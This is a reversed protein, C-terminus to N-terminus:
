VGAHPHVLIQRIGLARAVASAHQGAAGGFPVLVYDAPNYGKAVSIKRLARVMNANAVDIFGQALRLSYLPTGHALRCDTRM